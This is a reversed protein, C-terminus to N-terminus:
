FSRLPRKVCKTSETKGSGSEGSIIISQNRQDRLLSCFQKCFCRLYAICSSNFRAAGAFRTTRWHSSIRRLARATLLARRTQPTALLPRILFCSVSMCCKISLHRVSSGNRRCLRRAVQVPQSCAVSPRCVHLHPGVPLPVGRQAAARGPVCDNCVLVNCGFVQPQISANRVEHLHSLDIMDEVGDMFKPNTAHLASKKYLKPELAAAPGGAGGDVHERPVALFSDGKDESIKVLSFHNDPETAWADDGVQLSM